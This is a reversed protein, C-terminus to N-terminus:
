FPFGPYVRGFLPRLIVNCALYLSQSFWHFTHVLRDEERGVTFVQTVGKGGYYEEPVSKAYCRGYASAQVYPTNSAEQDARLSVM